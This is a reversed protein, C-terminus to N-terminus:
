CVIIVSHPGHIWTNEQWSQTSFLPQATKCIQTGYKDQLM